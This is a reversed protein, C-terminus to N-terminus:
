WSDTVSPEINSLALKCRKLSSKRRGTLGSFQRRQYTSFTVFHPQGPLDIIQRNPM